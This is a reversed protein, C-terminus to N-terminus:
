IVIQWPGGGGNEMANLCFIGRVPVELMNRFFLNAVVVGLFYVIAMSCAVRIFAAVLLLGLHCLYLKGLFLTSAACQM